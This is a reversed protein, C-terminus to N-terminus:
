FRVSRLMRLIFRFGEASGVTESFGKESTWYIDDLGKRRRHHHGERQRDVLVFLGSTGLSV